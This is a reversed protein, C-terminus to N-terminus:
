STKLKNFKQTSIENPKFSIQVNVEIENLRESINKESSSFLKINGGLFHKLM